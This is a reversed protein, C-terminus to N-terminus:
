KPTDSLGRTNACKPSNKQDCEFRGDNGREKQLVNGVGSTSLRCLENEIDVVMKSIAGVELTRKACAAWERLQYVAARVAHMRQTM